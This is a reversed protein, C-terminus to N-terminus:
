VRQHKPVMTSVASIILALIAAATFVNSYGMAVWILGGLLPVVMSAVHNISVGMALTSTLEQSSETLRSIYVARGNGLAFLLNDGIFCASAILLATERNGGAFAYAYGYGVCVLSLLLGDAMLVAREGFHDIAWGTLPKFGLGLLSAIMLLRAIYSAPAEYEQVLVWFGFTIFIQKRAGFLFELLYYLWFQKRIVLGARPQHLDPMHLKWYLFAAGAAIAGAVLFWTTYHPMDANFGFTVLGTGCAAGITTVVGLQALRRGRNHEDSLALAISSTVPQLLHQGASAIMMMLMMLLYHTSGWLAMGIMGIVFVIVGVIGLHTVALWSLVGAFAVVGFGPFERPLELFGRADAELQYTDALFNNFVAEYTALGATMLIAAAFFVIFQSRRTM